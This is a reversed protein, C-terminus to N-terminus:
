NGKRNCQLPITFKYETVYFQENQINFKLALQMKYPAFHKSTVNQFIKQHM